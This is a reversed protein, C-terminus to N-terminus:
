TSFLTSLLRILASNSIMEWYPSSHGSRGNHSENRSIIRSSNSNVRARTFTIPNGTTVSTTSFGNAVDAHARGGSETWGGLTSYTVPTTGSGFFSESDPPAINDSFTDNIYQGGNKQIYFQDISINYANATGAASIVFATAAAFAISSRYKM